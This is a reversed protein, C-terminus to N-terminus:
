VGEIFLETAAWSPFDFAVQRNLLSSDIKIKIRFWGEVRGTKDAYKSSLEAPKLHIWGTTDIHIGAAGSDNGQNFIWGNLQSLAIQDSFTQLMNASLVITSDQAPCLQTTFLLFLTIKFLKM